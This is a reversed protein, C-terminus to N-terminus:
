EDAHRICVRNKPRQRNLQENVGEAGHKEVEAKELSRYPERPEAEERKGADLLSLVVGTRAATQLVPDGISFGQIQASALQERYLSLADEPKGTARRLEALTHRASASKPDLEVARAFESAADDLRLAYRYAAGLVQHASAFEPKLALAAQAVRAAEEPREIGLYFSAVVLLRQANGAARAEVARALELAADREGLMYLNAPLQAVM